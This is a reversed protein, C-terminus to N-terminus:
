TGLFIAQVFQIARAVDGARDDGQNREVTLWGGYEAEVVLPLLEDWDVEGRGVPVEVAGEVDRVADRVQFHAVLQHLSRYAQSAPTGIAVFSVPDFNVGVPGQNIKGLFQELKEPADRTPAIALTVGIHNCDRAVDNVVDVLLAYQQSTEDEPIRGIRTTVVKAKLSYALRLVSRLEAIQAELREDEYWARKTPFALSAVSLGLESLMHLLQRTGTETLDAPKIETRADLQVGRAGLQVAVQLSQKLPLSLSRTAAAIQPARM